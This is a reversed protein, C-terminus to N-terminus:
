ESYTVLSSVYVNVNDPMLKKVVRVVSYCIEGSIQMDPTDTKSHM